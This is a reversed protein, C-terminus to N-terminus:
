AALWASFTVVEVTGSFAAHRKISIRKELRKKEEVGNRFNKRGNSKDCFLASEQVIHVVRRKAVVFICVVAVYQTKCAVVYEFLM